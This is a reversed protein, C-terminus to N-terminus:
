LKNQRFLTRGISELQIFFLLIESLSDSITSTVYMYQIQFDHLLANRLNNRNHRRYMQEAQRDMSSEIQLDKADTWHFTAGLRQEEQQFWSIFDKKEGSVPLNMQHLLLWKDYMKRKYQNTLVDRAENLKQFADASGGKDPHM